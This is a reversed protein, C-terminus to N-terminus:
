ALAGVSTFYLYSGGEGAVGRGRLECGEPHDGPAVWETCQQQILLQLSPIANAPTLAVNVM